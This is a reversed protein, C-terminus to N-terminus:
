LMTSVQAKNQIELKDKYENPTLYGLSQHPRYGHYEELWEDIIQQQDALDVAVGGWQICERELTGILREVYPKDKPTRIRAWYHNIGQEAVLKEFLGFNESGNDSLVSDPLGLHQVAKEWALAAQRSSITSAVYISAQRNFVDVAVFGYRKAGLNPLHKVDVEVLQSSDTIEMGKPKRMRQASKLRQPHRKPKIPRSFFLDYRKIIRGITSASVEIGHDRKLVRALKYKSYAPKRKRLTKVMDITAVPTTPKRVSEPRKSRDELGKTGHEDFRAKWKYFLSRHIDFHRCTLAANHGHTQYHDIWKLRAKAAKSLNPPPKVRSLNPVVTGIRTHQGVKRAM